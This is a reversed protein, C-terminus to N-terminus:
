QQTAAHVVIRPPITRQAKAVACLLCREVLLIRPQLTRANTRNRPGAPRIVREFVLDTQATYKGLAQEHHRLDADHRLRKWWINEVYFPIDM